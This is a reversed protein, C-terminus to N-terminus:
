EFLGVVLIMEQREMWRAPVTESLYHHQPSQSESHFFQPNFQLMFCVYVAIYCLCHPLYLRDKTYKTVMGLAAQLM